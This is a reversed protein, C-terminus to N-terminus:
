GLLGAMSPLSPVQVVGAQMDPQRKDRRRREDAEETWEPRDESRVCLLEGVAQLVGVM